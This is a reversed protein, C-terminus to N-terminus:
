GEQALKAFYSLTDDTSTAEVPAPAPADAPTTPEVVENLEVSEATNRPVTTGLVRALKTKLEDYTKYQSEGNFEQLNYLSNYVGELKVDDGGLFESVDGFESRDYNRYGEVKRIKLKFDAGGWFDFPNVPVDDPFEPQMAETLKDFIKKGYVYMFTKGENAPNASDSVVYINSVYHLRRKRQRVLEKDSDLGSNWLVTNMESLPDQKGISTLSREIYWMGGPGQFGHDWYRVWPVDEGEAAPLFRFVAYGNGSKDVTPKWYKDADKDWDNNKNGSVAEAAKVMADIQTKRNKKMASFSM